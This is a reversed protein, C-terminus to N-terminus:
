VNVYIIKSHTFSDLVEGTTQGNSQSFGFIIFIFVPLYKM